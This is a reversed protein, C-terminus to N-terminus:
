HRKGKAVVLSLEQIVGAPARKLSGAESVWVDGTELDVM